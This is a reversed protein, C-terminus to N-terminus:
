PGYVSGLLSDRVSSVPSGATVPAISPGEGVKLGVGIEPPAGIDRVVKGPEVGSDKAYGTYTDIAGQYLTHAQRTRRDMIQLLQQRQEDTLKNGGQVWDVFGSLINAPSQSNAIAAQEGERVASQPDLIKGVAYVFELDSGPGRSDKAEIASKITPLIVKYNTVEPLANFEKRLGSINDFERNAQQNQRDGQLAAASSQALQRTASANAQSAGVEQQRLALNAAETPSTVFEGPIPKAEGQSSVQFIGKAAEEPTAPRWTPPRNETALTDLRGQTLKARQDAPMGAVLREFESSQGADGKLLKAIQAQQLLSQMTQEREGQQQAQGAGAAGMAGGALGGLGGGRGQAVANNMGQGFGMLMQGIAQMRSTQPVGAMQMMQPSLGNQQQYAPTQLWDLIGPGSPGGSDQPSGTPSVYRGGVFPM